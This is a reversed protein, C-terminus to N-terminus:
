AAKKAADQVRQSLPQAAETAVKMWTSSLEVSDHMVRDMTKRVFGQQIEMAEQFTKAGFMAKQAAVGEAIQARALDFFRANFSEFGRAVANGAEVMAEFNAKPLATVQDFGKVESGARCVADLADRNMSVLSEYGKLAADTNSKTISEAAKIGADITEDFQATEAANATKSKATAM